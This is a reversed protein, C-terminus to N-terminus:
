DLHKRGDGLAALSDLRWALITPAAGPMALTGVYGHCPSLPLLTWAGHLAELRSALLAPGAPDLAVDFSSLPLTLGAGLAKLVAEKSTWWHFFATKRAAPPLSFYADIEAPAAHGRLVADADPPLDTREIDAGIARGTAVALLAMAQSRAASFHIPLDALAPKGHPGTIFRLTEARLGCYRALIARRFAHAATFRERDATTKCRGARAAEDPALLDALAAAENGPRDLRWAWLEVQGPKLGTSPSGRRHPSFEVDM